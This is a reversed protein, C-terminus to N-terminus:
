YGSFYDSHIYRHRVGAGRLYKKTATVMGQPGSVYVARETIDPVHKRLFESTIHQRGTVLILKLGKAAASKFLSTYALEDATKVAYILVVDRFDNNDLMYAIMSRFPTIGIGGAVFLLKHSSNKPLTFDGAVQRVYLGAGPEMTYLARKFSSGPHHFTVGLQVTDEVPSSAITFIRRNGRGDMGSHPLAWSAYQGPSFQLPVSTTFIYNYVNDAIREKAQLTLYWTRKPSVAFAYMNGILLAIEPYIFVRGVKLQFAYLAGVGGAFLVQQLKKAPMTAPETLMITGLFILPSATLLMTVTDNTPVGRHVGVILSVIVAAAAFVLFVYERRLKRLVVLGLLLSFPWLAVSGVWWTAHGIGALVVVAAGFAAPNYIHGGKYTIIFKSAMAAIAAIALAAYDTAETPPQMIFFLILITIPGSEFNVPVGWIWSFVQSTLYGTVMLICLSALLSLPTHGIQGILSCAVAIVALLSLGYLVM